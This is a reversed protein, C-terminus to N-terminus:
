KMHTLQWSHSHKGEDVLHYINEQEVTPETPRRSTKFKIKSESDSSQVRHKALQAWLKVDFQEAHAKAQVCLRTVQYATECM